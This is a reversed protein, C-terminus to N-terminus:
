GSSNAPWRASRPTTAANRASWAPRSRSSGARITARSRSGAGEIWNWSGSRRRQRPLVPRPHDGRGHRRLRRPVERALRGIRRRPPQDARRPAPPRPTVAPPPVAGRPSARRRVAGHCRRRRSPLPACGHRDGRQTRPEVRRDGRDQGRPPGTGQRDQRLRRRPRGVQDDTRQVSRHDVPGRRRGGHRQERVNKTPDLHPEQQLYGVSFGPTLRAEGSYGDDLGAMIKLLSSKGAGNSGLVGIKAGPYFSLSINELVMKDPPHVRKLKHCTYIFEHAM